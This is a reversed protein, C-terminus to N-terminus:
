SMILYISQRISVLPDSADFGSLDITEIINNIESYKQEDTKNLDNVISMVEEEKQYYYSFVCTLWSWLTSIYDIAAQKNAARADSLLKSLTMQRHPEYHFEAYEKVKIDIKKCQKEAWEQLPLRLDPDNLCKRAWIIEPSDEEFYEMGPFQSHVCIGTIENQENRFVYPM